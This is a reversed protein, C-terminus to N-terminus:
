KAGGNSRALIMPLYLSESVVTPTPTRSPTPTVTPYGYYIALEPRNNASESSGISLYGRGTGGLLMFGRNSAPNRKWASVLETFNFTYWKNGEALHQATYPAEEYDLGVGAAGPQAWELGTQAVQWTADNPSWAKLMPHITTDMESTDDWRSVFLRLQASKIV